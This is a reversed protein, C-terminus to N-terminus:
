DKKKKKKKMWIVSEAIRGPSESTWPCPRFRRERTTERGAGGCCGYRDTMKKKKKKLEHRERM